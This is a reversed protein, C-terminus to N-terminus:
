VTLQQHLQLLEEVHRMEVIRRDVIRVIDTGVFTVDRGTATAGFWPGSNTGTM